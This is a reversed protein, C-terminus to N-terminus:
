EPLKANTRALKLLLEELKKEYDAPSMETKGYKLEEIQNELEWVELM